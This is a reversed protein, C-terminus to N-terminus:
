LEDDDTEEDENEAEQNLTSKDEAVQERGGGVDAKGFPLERPPPPTDLQMDGVKGGEEMEKRRDPLGQGRSAFDLDDDREDETVDQDTADPTNVQESGDSEEKNQMLTKREFSEEESSEKDVVAAGNAKRKGARSATPMHAKSMARANQLKAAQNPDVKAGALLRQQDRIKLKKTNLLERFKQLLADEHEKKAQILDELQRNLKEMTKSQEDYKVTLDHVESELETSRQVATGAWSVIDLEQKADAKLVIDGLKQTIGSTNHRLTIALSEGAIAAIIELKKLHAAETKPTRRQTLALLLTTEWESDSLKNRHDRLKSIRKQKVKSSQDTTLRRQPSPSDSSM